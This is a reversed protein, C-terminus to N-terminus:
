GGEHTRPHGVHGHPGRGVVSGAPRPLTWFHSAPLVLRPYVPRFRRGKYLFPSRRIVLFRTRPKTTARAQATAAGDEPTGPAATTADVTARLLWKKVRRVKHWRRYDSVVRITIARLWAKPNRIPARGLKSHVVVFVRQTVDEVDAHDVGMSYVLRYVDRFHRDYLTRWTTAEVRRFTDTTDLALLQSESTNHVESIYHPM